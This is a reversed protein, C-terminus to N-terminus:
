GAEDDECEMDIVIGPQVTATIKTGDAGVAEVRTFNPNGTLLKAVHVAPSDIEPVLGIAAEAAKDDPEAIVPESRPLYRAIERTGFGARAIELLFNAAGVQDRPYSTITKTEPVQVYQKTEPDRRRVMVTVERSEGCAINTMASVVAPMQEWIRIQLDRSAGDQTSTFALDVGSQTELALRRARQDIAAVEEPYLSRLQYYVSRSIGNVNGLADTLTCEGTYFRYLAKEIASARVQGISVCTTITM